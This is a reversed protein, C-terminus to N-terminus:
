EGVIEVRARRGAGTLRVADGRRPTIVEIHGRRGIAEIFEEPTGTLAPSFGFPRQAGETYHIPIVFRPKLLKTVAHAADVPDMTFNGGIPLLALDIDYRKGLTRMEDFLYTDGAHYLTFGSDFRVLYGVAEGGHEAIGEVTLSSSHEAPVMIIEAVNGIHPFRTNLSPVLQGLQIIKDPTLKGGKNWDVVRCPDM